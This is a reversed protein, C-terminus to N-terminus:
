KRPGPAGEGTKIGLVANKLSEEIDKLREKYYIKQGFIDKVYFIDAAADGKTSIKAIYIYLGLMTLTSTIDYLLGIRNQAHIDIVTCSDSVENDVQVSTRVRPKPKSDLISPKRKGALAGIMVKGTICDSLNEEIKKLRAEDTLLEGTQTVVQLVDLIIGNRLTNIQAGLIDVSNAAMVGAIISFLGHIDHTCVIIETYHREANQRSVMVYPANHLRKLINMHEAISDPSTSLFYRQPLLAFYDDIAATDIRSPKLLTVLHERLRSLKKGADELEFSGRELVTMAKFFLEQFLADKWKTWVEPGVARVDAFTLLYLLKLREMGGVKKAFNIVLREDHMDRYQATDALILHNKVLFKVDEADDESLGLRGCIAETMAAGREAHGKGRGKGIDHLLVALILVAQSPLEKFMTAHVPFETKYERRLREIERVAFLTHVDVTYIHYIDHQVKCTIENFEPIISGLVKLRHMESLTQYINDNNLIKLFGATSDASSLIDKAGSSLIMDRAAQDMKLGLAQMHHFARVPAAPDSAFGAPDKVKLVDGSAEFVRDLSELRKPWFGKKEDREVCRSIILGSYHNINAASRYYKQMFEEVALTHETNKFNLIDALREQHDFTLQDVKRGAEFHLENRVWLLFDLSNMLLNKEDVSIFEDINADRAANKTKVVWNATHFDRLGGEGEKVNPELIFVSEGYRLHRLRSEELKERIFAESRKRSSLTKSLDKELCNCLEIDGALHRLDLLSTMTKLDSKALSICEDVSRISFGLDLGTDWLVYLMQQTFEEIEPTISKKYLLMMDIDSRINLEARGYGGIAVLCIDEPRSFKGAGSNFLTRIVADISETYSKCIKFGTPESLHAIRLDKEIDKLLDKIGEAASKGDNIAKQITDSKLM